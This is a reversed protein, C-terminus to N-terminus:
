IFLKIKDRHHSVTVEAAPIFAREACAWRSVQIVRTRELLLHKISGDAISARNAACDANSVAVITHIVQLRLRFYKENSWFDIEQFGTWGGIVKQDVIYSYIRVSFWSTTELMWRKRRCNSITVTRYTLCFGEVPMQFETQFSKEGFCNLLTTALSMLIENVTRWLQVAITPKPISQIDNVENTVILLM